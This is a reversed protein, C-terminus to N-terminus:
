SRVSAKTARLRGSDDITVVRIQGGRVGPPLSIRVRGNRALGTGGGVTRGGRVVKARAGRVFSAVALTLTCKVRVKGGRVKAPKCNITAGNLGAGASGRPGQPGAPGSPGSPGSPGDSGDSGSSGTPGGPGTPGSDGQPGQPLAGGDGTLSVEYRAPTANTDLVLVAQRTGEKQPAFRVWLSCTEGGPLPGRCTSAGIFFDDADDKTFSEGLIVLDAAGSNTVTIEQPASVTNQPQNEKFAVEGPAVTGAAQTLAPPIPSVQGSSNAGWCAVAGNTRVACNHSYGANVSTFTGAPPTARGFFDDGLCALTQDTRIACSHDYGASVATFLGGPPAPMPAGNSSFGGWCALTADTALACGHTGGAGAQLFAGLPPNGRGYSNYGWCTINGGTDVACSWTTGATNGASVAKFSGVPAVNFPPAQTNRGWCALTNDTKLGCSHDGGASIATFTGPPATSEGDDNKGWCLASADTRIACTHLGGADIASFTGPPATAQGNSNSGWCAITQDIKIACTHGGGASVKVSAGAGAPGTALLALGLTAAILAARAGRAM